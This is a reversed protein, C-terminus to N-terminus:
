LVSLISDSSYALNGLILFIASAILMIGVVIYAYLNRFSASIEKKAVTLVNRLKV